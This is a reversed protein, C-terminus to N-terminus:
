GWSKEWEAMEQGRGGGERAERGRWRRVPAAPRYRPGLVSPAIEFHKNLSRM